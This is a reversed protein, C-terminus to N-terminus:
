QKWFDFFNYWQYPYNRVYKELTQSFDLAYRDLMARRNERAANQPKMIKWVRVEFTDRGTKATLFIIVPVGVTAALHYAATPLRVPTGLFDVTASTGGLYRDAMINVLEGRMLANTAGIMGGFPDSSDIIEFPCGKRDAGLYQEIEVQDPQALLNMKVPLSDLVNLSTQWNGVHASVLVAGKGAKCIEMLPEINVWQNELRAKPNIGLWYSDLLVSAFSRLVRYRHYFNKLPGE